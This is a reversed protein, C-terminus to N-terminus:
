RGVSKKLENWTVSSSPSADMEQDRRSAEALGDDEDHLAAPLSDLLESALNARDRDTLNMAETKLAEIKSM